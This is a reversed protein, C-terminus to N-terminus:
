TIPSGPKAKTREVLRDFIIRQLDASGFVLPDDFSFYVIHKPEVRQEDILSGTVQKLATTKGVRRPGTLSIM